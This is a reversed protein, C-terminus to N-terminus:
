LFKNEAKIRKIEENVKKLVKETVEKTDISITVKGQNVKAKLEDLEEELEGTLQQELHLENRLRDNEIELEINDKSLSNSLWKYYKADDYNAYAITCALSLVGIIFVIM